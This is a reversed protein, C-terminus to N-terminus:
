TSIRLQSLQPKGYQEAETTYGCDSNYCNERILLSNLSDVDSAHRAVVLASYLIVAHERETLRADM